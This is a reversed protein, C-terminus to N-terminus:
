VQLDRLGYSRLIRIERNESGMVWNFSIESVIIECLYDDARTPLRPTECAGLQLTAVFGLRARCDVVEVVFLTLRSYVVIDCLM